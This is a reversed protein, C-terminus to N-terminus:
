LARVEMREGLAVLCLHQNTCALSDSAMAEFRLRPNARPGIVVLYRRM